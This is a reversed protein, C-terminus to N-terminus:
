IKLIFTHYVWEAFAFGSFASLFACLVSLHLYDKQAGLLFGVFFSFAFLLIDLSLSLASPIDVLAGMCNCPLELVFWYLAYGGWAAFVVSALLWFIWRNRFVLIALAFVVEFASVWLDLAKLSEKPHIFKQYAAFLLVLCVCWGFYLTVRGRLRSRSLWSCIPGARQVPCFKRFPFDNLLINPHVPHNKRKQGIRVM